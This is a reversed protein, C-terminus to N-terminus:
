AIIGLDRGRRVAQRRNDVDLKTLIASVHHDVTRASLYLRTAMEANTLGDDMLRLVEVQRHTLGVPNTLTSRRRRAPVTRVGSARLALRVKDAVATAGIRDLMDLGRRACDGDGTETLALAWEYPTGIREFEAAAGRIDGDLYLRYPLAVNDATVDPDLRRLWMGLEGRAWELGPAASDDLLGRWGALDSVPDGSIWAQEALAAVAPLVRIPEGYGRALAWAESLDDLAVGNCRLAVLGRILHPWTRALPASRGDLVTAADSVADGWEGTLLSLRGRAGLQWVRCIPLDREVTMPLSLNLLQEADRLRRQEVDLYTLNSYGSSYIEDLHRPASRMIALVADRGADDGGIVSCIGEIISVRVTLANEGAIAAIEKARDLLATARRLDTSQMALYAQM